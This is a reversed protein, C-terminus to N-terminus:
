LTSIFLYKKCFFRDHTYISKDKILFEFVAIKKIYYSM